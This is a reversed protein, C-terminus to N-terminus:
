SSFSVCPGSSFSVLIKKRNLKPGVKLHTCPHLENWWDFRKLLRYKKAKLDTAAGSSVNKVLYLCRCTTEPLRSLMSSVSLSEPKHGTLSCCQCADTHSTRWRVSSTLGNSSSSHTGSTERCLSSKVHKWCRTRYTFWTKRRPEEWINAAPEPHEREKKNLPQLLKAKIVM